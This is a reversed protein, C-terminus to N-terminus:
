HLQFYVMTTWGYEGKWLNLLIELFILSVYGCLQSLSCESSSSKVPCDYPKSMPLDSQPLKRVILPFLSCVFFIIYLHTEWTKPQASISLQNPSFVQVSIFGVNNDRENGNEFELAIIVEANKSDREFNSTKFHIEQVARHLSHM